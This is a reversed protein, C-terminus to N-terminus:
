SPAGTSLRALDRTLLAARDCADKIQEACRHSAEEAPLRSLLIDTFGNISTLANNLDHAFKLLSAPSIAIPLPPSQLAETPIKSPSVRILATRVALTLEQPSPLVKPLLEHAGSQVAELLPEVNGSPTFAIVASRPAAARLMRVADAGTSDPLELDVLVLSIERSRLFNLGEQFSHVMQAGPITSFSTAFLDRFKLALTKNPEILLISTSNSVSTPM